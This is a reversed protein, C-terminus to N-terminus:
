RELTATNFSSLKLLVNGIKEMEESLGENMLRITDATVGEITKDIAQRCDHQYANLARRLITMEDQDLRWHAPMQHECNVCSM